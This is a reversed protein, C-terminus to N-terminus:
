AERTWVWGTNEPLNWGLLSSPDRNWQRDTPFRISFSRWSGQRRNCITVTEKSNKTVFENIEVIFCLSRAWKRRYLGKFVRWFATSLLLWQLGTNCYSEKLCRPQFIGLSCMRVKFVRQGVMNRIRQVYIQDEAM